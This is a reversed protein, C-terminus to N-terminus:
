YNFEKPNEQVALLNHFEMVLVDDNADTKKYTFEVYYYGYTDIELTVYGSSLDEDDEDINPIIGVNGSFIKQVDDFKELDIHNEFAAFGGITNAYFSEEDVEYLSILVEGVSDYYVPLLFPSEISTINVVDGMGGSPYFQADSGYVDLGDSCGILVVVLIISILIKKM